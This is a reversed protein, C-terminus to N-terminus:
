FSLLLSTMAGLHTVDTPPQDLRTFIKFLAERSNFIKFLIKGFIIQYLDKFIM